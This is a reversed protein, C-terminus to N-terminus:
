NDIVEDLIVEEIWMKDIEADAYWESYNEYGDEECKKHLSDLIGLEAKKVSSFVGVVEKRYNDYAGKDYYGIYIKM